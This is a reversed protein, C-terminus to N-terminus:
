RAYRTASDPVRPLHFRKSDLPMLTFEWRGGKLRARIRLVLDRRKEQGDMSIIIGDFDTTRCSASRKSERRCYEIRDAGLDRLIAARAQAVIPPLDTVM